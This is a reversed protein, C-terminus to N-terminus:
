GLSSDLESESEVKGVFEVSHNVTEHIYGEANVSSYSKCYDTHIKSGVIVHKKIINVLTTAERNEVLIVRYYNTKTDVM